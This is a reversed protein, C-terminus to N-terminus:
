QLYQNIESLKQQYAHFASDETSFYGLYTNRGNIFIRAYWKKNRSHWSVGPYKSKKRRNKQNQLNQRTSSIRLNNKQNNLGNGDIHDVIEIESPGCIDRHMLVSISKGFLRIKRMAYHTRHNKYGYWKFPSLKEFDEDDVEASLGNTIVIKKVM